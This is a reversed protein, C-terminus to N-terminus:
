KTKEESLVKLKTIKNEAQSLFTQLQKVIEQGRQYHSLAQEIDIESNQLEDLISDLEERLTQYDPEKTPM